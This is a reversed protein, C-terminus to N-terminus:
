DSKTTKSKKRKKSEKDHKKEEKPKQEEKKQKGVWEMFTEDSNNFAEIGRWKWFVENKVVVTDLVGFEILGEVYNERVYRKQMGCILALKKYTRELSEQRQQQLYSLIQGLHSGRVRGETINRGLVDMIEKIEQPNTLDKSM